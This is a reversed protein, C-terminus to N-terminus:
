EFFVRLGSIILGSSDDYTFKYNLGNITTQVGDEGPMEGMLSLVSRWASLQDSKDEASSITYVFEELTPFWHDFTRSSDEESTLFGLSVSDFVDSGDAQTDNKNFQCFIGTYSGDINVYYMGDGKATLTTDDPLREQFLSVFKDVSILFGSNRGYVRNDPTATPTPEATATPEPTAIPTPAETPKIFTAQGGCAALSFLMILILAVLISKKM